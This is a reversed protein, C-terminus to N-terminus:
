VGALTIISPYSIAQTSRMIAEPTTTLDGFDYVMMYVSTSNHYGDYMQRTNCTFVADQIVEKVRLTQNGKYTSSPYQIEIDQRLPALSDEPIFDHVFQTFNDPTQVWAPVFNHAEDSVHSVILSDLPWFNGLNRQDAVRDDRISVM